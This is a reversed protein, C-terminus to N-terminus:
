LLDKEPPKPPSYNTLLQVITKDGRKQAYELMTEGNMTKASPDAGRSLLLSVISTSGVYIGRYLPSEGSASKIEPSAGYSLLISVISTSNRSM